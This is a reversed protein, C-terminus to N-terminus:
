SRTSTIIAGHFKKNSAKLTDILALLGEGEVRLLASHGGPVLEVKRGYLVVEVLKLRIPLALEDTGSLTDGNSAFIRDFVTGVPIDGDENQGTVVGDENASDVNFRYELM